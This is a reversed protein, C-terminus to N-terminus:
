PCRIDGRCDICQYWVPVDQFYARGTAAHLISGCNMCRQFKCAATGNCDCTGSQCDQPTVVVVAQIALPDGRMRRNIDKFDDIIAM